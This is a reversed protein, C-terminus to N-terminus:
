KEFDWLEEEERWRRVFESMMDSTVNESTSARRMIKSLQLEMSKSLDEYDEVSSNILEKSIRWSATTGEPSVVIYSGEPDLKEM